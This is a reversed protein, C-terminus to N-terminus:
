LLRLNLESADDSGEQSDGRARHDGRDGDSSVQEQEQGRRRLSQEETTRRRAATTRRGTEAKGCQRWTGDRNRGGEGASRGGEERPGKHGSARGWKGRGGAGEAM